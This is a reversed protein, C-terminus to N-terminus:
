GKMKVASKQSLGILLIGLIFIAGGVISGRLKQDSPTHFLYCESPDEPNYHVELTNGPILKKQLQKLRESPGDTSSSVEEFLFRSTPKRGTYQTGNVQYRYETIIRWGKCEVAKSDPPMDRAGWEVRTRSTLILESSQIKGNVTPWSVKSCDERHALYGMTITVLGALVSLLGLGFIKKTM